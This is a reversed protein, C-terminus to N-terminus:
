RKFKGTRLVHVLVIPWLLCLYVRHKLTAPGYNMELRVGIFMLVAPMLYLLLLETMAKPKYRGHFTHSGTYSAM